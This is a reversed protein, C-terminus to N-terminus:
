QSHREGLYTRRRKPNTQANPPDQFIVPRKRRLRRRRSDGSHKVCKLKTQNLLQGRDQFSLGAAEYEERQWGVGVGLELRGCSLVDITATMKALVVPRRLAAILIRTGYRVRTTVATLHCAITVLPDLWPGDPGTPQSGGLLGGVEPRVTPMWIRESCWMILYSCNTSVLKTRQGPLIVLHSWDLVNDAAFSPLTTSIHIPHANTEGRRM